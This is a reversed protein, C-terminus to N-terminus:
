AHGAARRASHSSRRHRPRTSALRLRAGARHTRVSATRVAEDYLTSEEFARELARRSVSDIAPADLWFIRTAPAPVRAVTWERSTSDRLSLRAAGAASDYHVVVEYGAHRWVDRAGNASGVPLTAAVEPWWSPEGIRIPPLPLLHGADGDGAGPLAYAVAPAGDVTTLAFSGPDMRYFPLTAAARAAPEGVTARVSDLAARVAMAREREVVPLASGAGVVGALPVAGRGRLDIVGRRSTHWPAADDREVDTHTDFSVFPGHVEMLDLSAVASWRPDDSPEDSGRLPRDDPHRRQYERALRPVITDEYVLVSDGRVLDRRYVRQGIFTADEFSRDDDAVYLEYFRGGVRALELPAGRVRVAGAVSRVWFASDGAALLFEAVPPPTAAATAPVADRCGATVALALAALRLLRRPRARSPFPTPM